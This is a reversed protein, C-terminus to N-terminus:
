TARDRKQAFVKFIAATKEFAQKPKWRTNVLLSPEGTAAVIGFSAMDLDRQPDTSHLLSRQIFDFVFAAEIGASEYTVLLDTLLRAQTEESRVYQGKLCPPSANRDIIDYGAPGKKDAGVYCCCGFETIAVPKGFAELKELGKGYSRENFSARYYNMSVIDFPSWDISEWLGAAYTIRGTFQRRAAAAAEVVLSNLDQQYHPSLHLIKRIIWFPTFLNQIRDLITLGKILGRADLTFETGVVFIVETGNQDKHLGEFERACDDIYRLTETRTGNILRPSLWVHLGVDLALRAAERLVAPDTGYLRIANAHLEERIVRLDFGIEDITPKIVRQGPISYDLGIDYNVGYYNMIIAKHLVELRPPLDGGGYPHDIKVAMNKARAERPRIATRRSVAAIRGRAFRPSSCTILPESYQLM